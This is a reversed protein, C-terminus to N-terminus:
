EIRSVRNDRKRRVFLVYIVLMTIALGYWTLAYNLHPHAREKMLEKPLLFSDVPTPLGNDMLLLIGNKITTFHFSELQAKNVYFWENSDPQNEPTFWGKQYLGRWVGELTVPHDYTPMHETVHEKQSAPVWGRNVLLVCDPSIEFPTLIDYGFDGTTSKKGQYLAIHIPMFIGEVVMNRGYYHSEAANDCIEHTDISPLAQQQALYQGKANKHLHKKFQWTGFSSSAIVIIFSVITFGILKQHM